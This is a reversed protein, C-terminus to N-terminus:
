GRCGEVVIAQESEAAGAADAIATSAIGVAVDLCALGEEPLVNGM